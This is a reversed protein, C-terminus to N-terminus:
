RCPSPSKHIHSLRVRNVYSSPCGYVIRFISQRLLAACGSLNNFNDFNFNLHPLLLSIININGIRSFVYGSTLGLVRTVHTSGRQGGQRQPLGTCSVFYISCALLGESSSLDLYLFIELSKLPVRSKRM